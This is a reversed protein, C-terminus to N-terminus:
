AFRLNLPMNTVSPTVDMDIGNGASAAVTQNIPNHNSNDRKAKLLNFLEQAVIKVQIDQNESVNDVKREIPRTASIAAEMCEKVGEFFGNMNMNITVPPTGNGNKRNNRFNNNNYNGKNGVRIVKTVPRNRVIGVISEANDESDNSPDDNFKYTFNGKEIFIGAKAGNIANKKYNKQIRGNLVKKPTNQESNPNEVRWQQSKVKVGRASEVTTFHKKIRCCEPHNMNQIEKAFRISSNEPQIDNRENIDMMEMDSNIEDYRKRYDSGSSIEDEDDDDDSQNGADDNFRDFKSIGCKTGRKAANIRAIEDLSANLEDEDIYREKKRLNVLDVINNKRIYDDLSFDASM